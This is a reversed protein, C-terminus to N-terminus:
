DTCVHDNAAKKRSTYCDYCIADTWRCYSCMTEDCYVCRLLKYYEYANAGQGSVLASIYEGKKLCKDCYFGGFDRVLAIYKEGDTEM